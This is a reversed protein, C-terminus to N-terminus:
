YRHTSCHLPPEFQANSVSYLFHANSTCLGRCGGSPLSFSPPPTLGIYLKMVCTVHFLTFSSGGGEENKILSFTGRPGLARLLPSGLIFIPLISSLVNDNNLPPPSSMIINVFLCGASVSALSNRLLLVCKGEM